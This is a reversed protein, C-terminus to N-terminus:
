CHVWMGIRAGINMGLSGNYLGTNVACAKWNPFWGKGNIEQQKEKAIEFSKFKELM